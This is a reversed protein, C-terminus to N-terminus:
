MSNKSSNDTLKNVLTDTLLGIIYLFIVLIISTWWADQIRLGFTTLFYDIVKYPQGIVIYALWAALQFLTNKFKGIKYQKINLTLLAMEFTFIIVSVISNTISFTVEDLLAHCLIGLLSCFTLVVGMMVIFGAPLDMFKRTFLGKEKSINETFTNIKLSFKIDKKIEIMSYGLALIFFILLRTHFIVVVWYFFMGVGWYALKKNKKFFSIMLLVFPILYYTFLVVGGEALVVAASNSLGLNHSRFDSMYAQIPQETNYGCGLIPYNVWCKIAAVFDDIHTLFGRGGTNKKYFFLAIVGVAAIMFSIATFLKTYKKGEISELFKFFLAVLAIMMTLTARNSGITILFLGVILLNSKKKLFLETYLGFGLLLGFMPPEIFIGLNKTKDAEYDVVWRRICLNLYNTNAYEGGWNVYVDEGMGWLGLLNSGIWLLSSTVAVFLVMYELKFLLKFPTGNKRYIAFLAIMANVFFLFYGLFCSGKSNVVNLANFILVFLLSLLFMYKYSIIVEINSKDKIVHLLILIYACANGLLMALTRVNVKMEIARYVSNCDLLITLLLIFEVICIVLDIALNDKKYCNNM